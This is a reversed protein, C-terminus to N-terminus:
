NTKGFEEQIAEDALEIEAGREEAAEFDADNKDLTKELDEILLELTPVYGQQIYQTKRSKLFAIMDKQFENNM